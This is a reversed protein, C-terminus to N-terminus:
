KDKGTLRPYGLADKAQDRSEAIEAVLPDDEDLVKVRDIEDLLAAQSRMLRKLANTLEAVRSEPVYYTVPQPIPSNDPNTPAMSWFEEDTYARWVYGKADVGIRHPTDMWSSLDDAERQSGM